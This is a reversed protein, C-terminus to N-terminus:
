VTNQLLTGLNNLTAAFNITFITNINYSLSLNRGNMSISMSNVSIVGYSQLIVAKVALEIQASNAPQKLYTFWDIGSQMDWVCNNLFSLIRTKINEAVAAQGTLYNQIGMGFTIDGNSDLARIIM